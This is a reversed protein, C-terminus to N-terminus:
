PKYTLVKIGTLAGAQGELPTTGAPYGGVKLLHAVIDANQTPCREPTTSRCRCASASSSRTSREGEWNAYFSPGTLPPAAEVGGLGDGHCMACKEAHVDAGSLRSM